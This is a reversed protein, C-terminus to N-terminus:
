QKNMLSRWKSNIKLRWIKLSRINDELWSRWAQIKLRSLDEQLRIIKIVQASSFKCRVSQPRIWHLKYCLRWHIHRARPFHCVLVLYIYRSRTRSVSRPGGDEHSKFEGTTRFIFWKTISLTTPLRYEQRSKLYIWLWTVSKIRPGDKGLVTSDPSPSEKGKSPLHIVVEEKSKQCVWLWWRIQYTKVQLRKCLVLHKKGYLRPLRLMLRLAAFGTKRWNRILLHLTTTENLIVTSYSLFWQCYQSTKM